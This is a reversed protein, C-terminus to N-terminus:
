EDVNAENTAADEEERLVGSSDEQADNILPVNTTEEEAKGRKDATPVQRRIRRGYAGGKADDQSVRPPKNSGAVAITDSTNM